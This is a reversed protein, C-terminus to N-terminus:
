GYDRRENQQRRAASRMQFREFGVISGGPTKEGCAIKLARKRDGIAPKAPTSRGLLPAPFKTEELSVRQHGAAVLFGGELQQFAGGRGGRGIKLGTASHM